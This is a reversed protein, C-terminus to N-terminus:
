ELLKATNRSNAKRQESTGGIHITVRTPGKEEDTALATRQLKPTVFEALKV